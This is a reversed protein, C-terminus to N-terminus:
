RLISTSDGALREEAAVAERVAQPDPAEPATLREIAEALRTIAIAQRDLRELLATYAAPDLTDGPHPRSGAMNDVPELGPPRDVPIPPDAAAGVEMFYRHMARLLRASPDRESGGAIKRIRGPSAEVREAIQEDSLGLDVM